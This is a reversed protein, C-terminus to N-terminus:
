WHFDVGMLPGHQKADYKYRDKGSGHEYDFKMWRYGAFVSGWERFRYDVTGALNWTGDSGGFGYDVRGIATWKQSLRSVMRGGVMADWWNEKVKVSELTPLPVGKVRMDQEVYRAGGLIHFQTKKFEAVRYLVGFEAMKSKFTVDLTAGFPTKASPSLDVFQYEAFLTLDRKQAEFHFTFAADLNDLADKFEIELPLTAPGIASSGSIGMGWLFLPAFRFRWDDESKESQAVAAQLNLSVLILLL